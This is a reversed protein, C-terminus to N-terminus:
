RVKFLPELPPACHTEELRKGDVARKILPFVQDYAAFLQTLDTDSHAYSINHSGLILIGRALMEQLFLTRIQHKTYEGSEQLLLFPWAPNGSVRFITAVEHKQISEALGLMIKKGTSRLKEVVPQRRLKKLCALSAALSLAEGGFTLSYFLEGMLRMIKAPGTIASIPYGNAMGKGFTALDPVVGFLEQAGGNSFRFGTMTEDFILLAGHSHTIEGVQELFGPAPESVNMPEMIVAAVQEPGVKKFLAQLSELNNYTFGHTLKRMAEPVGLNRATSGIYWDQWGHYGCTIIHDRGTYARALRVVGDTADSANKGFRVMEACPVIEVLEEAVLMELRHPLSFIVGDRLQAEVAATVDPDCHGLLVSCLDNVLDIYENGDVDWVHSGLAREMFLPSVNLSYQTKSKRFTQSGLPISKLARGLTLESQRYRSVAPKAMARKPASLNSATMRAEVAEIDAKLSRAYGENGHIGSNLELLEPRSELLALVDEMGFNPKAPYLAEYVRAVFEFDEPYDVTWRHGSLDRERKYHGIRFRQPQGHIFPTVHELHSPLWAENWAQELARFTFVEVDLGHPLIREIANTAYDYNGELYFRIVEDIVYSDALPCDATLRVVHKPRLPEASQYFRDLVNELSGRFCSVGLESCLQQVPDDAGGTSTAVLLHDMECCRGLRELQHALMPRGLITRLVKGPLRSSGVRAQLIGLTEIRHDPESTAIGVQVRSV